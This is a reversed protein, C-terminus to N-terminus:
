WRFIVGGQLLAASSGNVAVSGVTPFTLTSASVGIWSFDFDFALNKLIPFEYGLTPGIAFSSTSASYSVQTTSLTDGLLAIGIRAGLYLGTGFMRRTILEAMLLTISGDSTVTGVTTSSSDHGAVLGLSILGNQSGALSTGVRGSYILSNTGGSSTGIAAGLLANAYSERGPAWETQPGLETPTGDDALAAVTNWCLFLCGILIIKNM